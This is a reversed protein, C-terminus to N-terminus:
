CTPACMRLNRAAFYQRTTFVFTAPGKVTVGSPVQIRTTIGNYTGSVTVTQGSKANQITAVIPNNAKAVTAAIALLAITMTRNLSKMTLM